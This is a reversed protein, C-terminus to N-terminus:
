LRWSWECSARLLAERSLLAVYTSARRPILGSVGKGLLLVAAGDVGGGSEYGLAMGSSASMSGCASCFVSGGYISLCPPLPGGIPWDIKCPILPMNRCRNGALPRLGVGTILPVGNSSVGCGYYLHPVFTEGSWFINAIEAAEFFVSWGFYNLSRWSYKVKTRRM